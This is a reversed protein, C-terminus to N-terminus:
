TYMLDMYESAQVYRQDHAVAKTSGMAKAASDSYSTVVNWAVRGKTAHDLTSWTRALLYPQTVM